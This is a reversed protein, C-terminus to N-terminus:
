PKFLNSVEEININQMANLKAFTREKGPKMKSTYPNGAFLNRKAAIIRKSEAVLNDFRFEREAKEM